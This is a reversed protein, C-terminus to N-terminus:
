ACFCPHSMTFRNSASNNAIIANFAQLGSGEGQSVAVMRQMDGAFDFTTVAKQVVAPNTTQRNQNAIRYLHHDVLRGKEL